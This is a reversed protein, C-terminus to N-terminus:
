PSCVQWGLAGTGVGSAAAAEHAWLVTTAVPTAQAASRRAFRVTNWVVADYRFKAYLGKVRAVLDGDPGPFVHVPVGRREYGEKLPGDDPAAVEVLGGTRQLLGSLGWLRLAAEDIRLSHSVLLVAWHRATTRVFPYVTQPPVGAEAGDGAGEGGGALARAAAEAGSHAGAEPAAPRPGRYQPACDHLAAPPGLGLARTQVSSVRYGGRYVAAAVRAEARAGRRATAAFVGDTRLARLGEEDTVWAGCPVRLAPAAGADAEAAAEAEAPGPCRLTLSVLRVERSLPATLASLWDAHYPGKVRVGERLRGPVRVM